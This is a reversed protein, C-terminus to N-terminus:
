EIGRQQSSGGVPELKIDVPVTQDSDISVDQEAFKYGYNAVMVHHTGVPLKVVRNGHGIAQGDVFTYAQKPDVKMKLKGPKTDQAFTVSFTVSSLLVTAGIVMSVRRITKASM